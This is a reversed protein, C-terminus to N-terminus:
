NEVMPLYWNNRNMLKQYLSNGNLESDQLASNDRRALRSALFHEGRRFAFRMLDFFRNGEFATELAYEDILLDEMRAISDARSAQPGLVYLTDSETSGCGRAHFGLNINNDKFDYFSANIALLESLEAADYKVLNGRSLGYKLLTFATQPYGARNIAETLRLWIDAARYTTVFPFGASFKSVPIASTTGTSHQYLRLDGHTYQLRNGTTVAYLYVAKEPSGYYTTDAIYEFRDSANSQYGTFCYNSSNVLTELSASGQCQSMTVPLQFTLGYNSNEAFPIISIREDAGDISRFISNWQGTWSSYDASTYQNCYSVSTSHEQNLLYDHYLTAAEVFDQQDSTVSGRWLYLDGLLLRIPLYFMKSDFTANSSYSFEGYDPLETETFPRLDQIFYTCIEAMGKRNSQDNMVNKIDSYTLLPTTYFPVTGYIKALQLYTWARWARVVANEKEFVKKNGRVMTTDAHSLFYNCNNIIAYYDRYRNYTSDTLDGFERLETLVHNTSEPKLTVLDGRLEGLVVNREAVKQVKALIGLVSFVTDSTESLTHDESFMVTSTEVDCSATVGTFILLGLAKGFLSHFSIKITKM